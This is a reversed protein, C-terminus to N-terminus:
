DSAFIDYIAMNINYVAQATLGQPRSVKWHRESANLTTQFSLLKYVLDKEVLTKDQYYDEVSKLARIFIELREEEIDSSLRFLVLLGEDSDYEEHIVALAQRTNMTKM